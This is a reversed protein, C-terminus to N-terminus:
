LNSMSSKYKIIIQSQQYEAKMIFFLTQLNLHHKIMIILFTSLSIIDNERVYERYNKCHTIKSTSSFMFFIIRCVFANLGLQTQALSLSLSFSCHASM